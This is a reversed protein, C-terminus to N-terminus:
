RRFLRSRGHTFTNQPPAAWECEGLVILESDKISTSETSFLYGLYPIDKLLPFGGKSRVVNQKKLGGIVFRGRGHPLSVSQKVVGSDSIRPSGDSNFGILSTNSLSMEFRTEELNVSANAINLTFGFEGSATVTQRNAKAVPYDDDASIVRDILASLLKYFGVGRDPSDAAGPASKTNDVYFIRTTRGLSAPTNNRICLSGSHLVEARGIATLFDIYRTNWKPNFNYFSTRESGSATLGGGYSASWNDRYRGGVSFFDIGGNNKWAQFDIGIRDDNERYIEYVTITLKVEPIPVDYQELMKEINSQSFNVVDFLLWNLDPDCAVLDMGQWVETVDTVNMGVNEILPKLNRAPVFKPIYFFTQTGFCSGMGPKDLFAVLSDFGMGNKHDRFRYEEASIILLGTGDVYKLCEVATNSGLQLNPSYGPQATAPTVLAATSVTAAAPTSATNGPYVQQLATNGVRKAQVMQRIYDRFEYADVNKLLYSKTVVRPDNNDRIFHVVRTDDKVPVVLQAEIRTGDYGGTNNFNSDRPVGAVEVAAAPRLAAAALSAFFVFHKPIQTFKMM